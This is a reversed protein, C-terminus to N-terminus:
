TGPLLLEAIQVANTAAGKRLNDCVVWLHLENKATGQRIRGVHVQDNGVCDQLSPQGSTGYVQLGPAAQLCATASAASLDEQTRVAISLAHGIQTPVRVCTATIALQPANLLRQTETRMRLEEATVGGEGVSDCQPILNNILAQGFAETSGELAALGERGAGSAAQMTTILVQSLSAKSQLAALVMVLPVNTCNPSAIIGCHQEVQAGNIEPIILPVQSDLRWAPSLDVVICGAAALLPAYEKASEAPAALFVLDANAAAAPSTGRPSVETISTHPFQRQALLRLLM